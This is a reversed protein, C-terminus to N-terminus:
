ISMCLSKVLVFINMNHTLNLKPLSTKVFFELIFYFGAITPPNFYEIFYQM